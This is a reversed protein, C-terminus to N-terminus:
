TVFYLIIYIIYRIYSIVCLIIHHIHLFFLYTAIHIKCYQSLRPFVFYNVSFALHKNDNYYIRM